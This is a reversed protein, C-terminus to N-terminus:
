RPSATLNRLAYLDRDPDNSIMINDIYIGDDSMGDPDNGVILLIPSITAITTTNETEPTGNIYLIRSNAAADYELEIFTATNDSVTGSSVYNHSTGGDRWNCNLLNSNHITVYVYNSSDEEIKITGSESSTSTVFKVYFGIRGASGSALDESSIDFEYRDYSTPFDCGNTGVMVADTNIAADSFGTATNDGGSYYDDAGLTEGECRWWFTIDSYDDGDAPVSGMQQLLGFGFVAVPLLIIILFCAVKKM